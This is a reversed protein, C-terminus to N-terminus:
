GDKPVKPSMSKELVAKRLEEIGMEKLGEEKPRAGIIRNSSVERRSGM